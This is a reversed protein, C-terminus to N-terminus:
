QKTEEYAALAADAQTIADRDKPTYYYDLRSRTVRLAEALKDAHTQSAILENNLRLMERETDKATWTQTDTNM